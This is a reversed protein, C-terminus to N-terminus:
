AFIPGPPNRCHWRKPLVARNTGGKREFM